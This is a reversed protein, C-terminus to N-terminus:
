IAEDEERASPDWNAGRADYRRERERVEDWVFGEYVGLAVGVARVAEADTQLQHGWLHIVPLDHRWILQRDRSADLWRQWYARPEAPDVTLAYPCAPDICGHWQCGDAEMAAYYDPLYADVRRGGFWAQREYRIGLTDLAAYMRREIITPNELTGPEIQAPIDM